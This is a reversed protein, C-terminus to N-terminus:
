KAIGQLVSDLDFANFTGHHIQVNGNSEKYIETPVITPGTAQLLAMHQRLLEATQKKPLAQPVGGFHVMNFRKENELIAALPDKAQLIYAAKGVSSHALYGVIIYRVQLHMDEFLPQLQEILVHCYPCNPDFIVYLIRPGKGQEIWHSQDLKAWLKQAKTGTPVGSAWASTSLSILFMLAIFFFAM